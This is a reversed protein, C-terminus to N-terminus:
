EQNPPPSQAEEDILPIDEDTEEGAELVNDKDSGQVMEDDSLLLTLLGKNRVSVYKKRSKNTLKTLLDNYIIEGIDVKTRTMLCFAIMQQISNIQETSSYNEGLIPNTVIKALEAKVAKPSPHAVYEVNNYDLGTSTTFTKFDITLPKKCEDSLVQNSVEAKLRTFTSENLPKTFIDALQYETPIFHLEIDGVDLLLLMNLRLKPCLWQSHNRLVGVFWSGELSKVPVQPAKEIWTAILMTQTKTDRFIRKVAILHSKKLSSRYRAYIIISFQIDPRTATLYMLSGIMGRYLTENVPKGALDHGLNKPPVMPTKVSSSDCIEYKKLLNRTYQEQCIPIGKDDPAFTEDYDIGEEQSYGQAVLRANNKTVIGHEDKKNRFVWKYGIAIKGYPLLVLTCVKNRYFQNLDEQIADIWGLHKLAESVKKPEIESLFDAFLCKSASTATLKTVMSRTLMGEEPDGIINVLEIHQDKSWRDKFAKSNFSYRLFYGDDAKADFKGLHDKHNHIFVHCGFVYFYSIDPIRERFTEYPTRDRIKVIISKNPTYYSIEVNQEPTYPSSLNQSIRKEDCFSDLEINRFETRNDTRIQKVKVDNQNEVMLDLSIWIFFNCANRSQSTKNLKSLLEKTNEKKVHQAHNIKQIFLSPLGLVKNQKALKNINKFNLHSPRKHWLWNVSELAKAFFCAGNPTLSSMDLVYVDNRRPVRLM